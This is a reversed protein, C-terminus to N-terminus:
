TIGKAARQKGISTFKEQIIATPHLGAALLLKRADEVMAPNGCLYVQAPGGTLLEPLHDTVRGHLGAWEEPPASLTTQAHGELEPDYLIDEKHRYGMLILADPADARMAMYPAIGTGTAVFIRRVGPEVPKVVFRGYPGELHVEAGVHISQLYRTATGGELHKVCLIIRDVAHEVPANVVSYPRKEVHGDPQPAHIMVFQGAILPMTFGGELEFSYEFTDHSLPRTAVLRSLYIQPHLVNM